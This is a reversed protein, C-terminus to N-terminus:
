QRLGAARHVFPLFDWRFGRLLRHFCRRLENKLDLNGEETSLLCFRSSFNFFLYIFLGGRPAASTAACTPQRVQSRPGNARLTTGSKRNVERRQPAFTFCFPTPILFHGDFSTGLTSVIGFDRNPASCLRFSLSDSDVAVRDRSAPDGVGWTHFDTLAM